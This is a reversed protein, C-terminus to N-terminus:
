VFRGETSLITKKEKTRPGTEQGPGGKRKGVKERTKKKKGWSKWPGSGTLPLKKEQDVGLNEAKFNHLRRKSAKEV